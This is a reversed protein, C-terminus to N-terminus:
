ERTCLVLGHLYASTDILQQDRLRAKRPKCGDNCIQYHGQDVWPGLLYVAFIVRFSRQVLRLGRDDGFIPLQILMSPEIPVSPMNKVPGAALYDYRKLQLVVVGRPDSLAHITHQNSWKLLLEPLSAGQLEIMITIRLSGSGVVVPPNHLRAQWEGRFAPPLATDLLHTLYM